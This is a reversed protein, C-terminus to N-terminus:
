IVFRFSVPGTCFETFSLFLLMGLFLDWGRESSFSSIWISKTSGDLRDRFPLKSRQMFRGSRLIGSALIMTVKCQISNSLMLEINIVGKLSFDTIVLVNM